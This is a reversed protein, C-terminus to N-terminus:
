ELEIAAFVLYSVLVEVPDSLHAREIRTMGHGTSHGSSHWHEFVAGNRFRVLRARVTGRTTEIITEKGALVDRAKEEFYARHEQMVSDHRRLHEDIAGDTDGALRKPSTADIVLVDAGAASELELRAYATWGVSGGARRQRSPRRTEEDNKRM